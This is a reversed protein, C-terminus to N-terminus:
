YKLLFLYQNSIAVLPRPEITFCAYGSRTSRRYSLSPPRLTSSVLRTATAFHVVAVIACLAINSHSWLGHAFSEMGYIVSRVLHGEEPAEDPSLVRLLHAKQLVDVRQPERSLVAYEGCLLWDAYLSNLYRNHTQYVFAFVRVMFCIPCEQTFCSEKTERGPFRPAIKRELIM